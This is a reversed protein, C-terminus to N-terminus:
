FTYQYELKGLIQQYSGDDGSAKYDEWGINAGLNHVTAIYVENGFWVTNKTYIMSGNQSDSVLNYQIFSKWKEPTITYTFKENGSIINETISGTKIRYAILDFNNEVRYLDLGAIIGGTITNQDELKTGSEMSSEDRQSITGTLIMQLSKFISGFFFTKSIDLGGEVMIWDESSQSVEKESKAQEYKTRLTMSLESNVRFTGNLWTGFESTTLVEEEPEGAVNNKRFYVNHYIDFSSIRWDYGLYFKLLDNEFDPVAVSFYNEDIYYIKGIFRLNLSFSNEGEFYLANGKLVKNDANLKDSDYSAYAYNLYVRTRPTYFGVKSGIIENKLPLAEHNENSKLSNEADQFLAYIQEVKFNESIKFEVGGGYNNQQFQGSQNLSSDEAPAAEYGKLVERTFGLFGMIQVSNILTGDDQLFGIGGNVGKLDSSWLTVPTYSLTDDGLHLFWTKKSQANYNDMQVYFSDITYANFDEDEKEYQYTLKARTAPGQGQYADNFTYIEIFPNFEISKSKQKSLDTG